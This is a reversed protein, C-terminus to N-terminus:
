NKLKENDSTPVVLCLGAVLTDLSSLLVHAFRRAGPLEPTTDGLHGHHVRQPAASPYFQIEMDACFSLRRSLLTAGSYLM